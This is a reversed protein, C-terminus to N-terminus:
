EIGEKILSKLNFKHLIRWNRKENYPLVFVKKDYPKINEENVDVLGWNKLCFIISNRRVYDDETIGNYASNRTLLFLEKFHYIKSEYLYCSPYLIQEKKNAIGIRSLTEKVVNEKVLIDVCFGLENNM